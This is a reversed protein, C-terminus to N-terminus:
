PLYLRKVPQVLRSSVATAFCSMGHMCLLSVHQRFWQQLPFYKHTHTHTRASAQTLAHMNADTHTASNTPTPARSRAHTQVRTSKSIWYAVGLRWITQTREAEVMNKSM